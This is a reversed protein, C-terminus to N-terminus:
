AWSIKKSLNKCKKIVVFHKVAKLLATKEPEPLPQSKPHLLCWNARKGRREMLSFAVPM